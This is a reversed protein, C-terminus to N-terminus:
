CLRVTSLNQAAVFIGTGPFPFFKQFLSCYRSVFIFLFHIRGRLKRGNRNGDRCSQLGRVSSAFCLVISVSSASHSSERCIAQVACYHPTPLASCQQCEQPPSPIWAHQFYIGRSIFTLCSGWERGVRFIYIGRGRTRHSLSRSDYCPRHGMLFKGRKHKQRPAMWRM